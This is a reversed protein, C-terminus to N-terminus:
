GNKRSLGWKVSSTHAAKQASLFIFKTSKVWLKSQPLGSLAGPRHTGAAREQFGSPMHLDNCTLAPSGTTVHSPHEPFLHEGSQPSSLEQQNQAKDGM